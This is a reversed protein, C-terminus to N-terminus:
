NRWKKHYRLLMYFESYIATNISQVYLHNFLTICKMKISKSKHFWLLFNFFFFCNLEVCFNCCFCFLFLSSISNRQLVLSRICFIFFYFSRRRATRGHHFHLSTSFKIMLITIQLMYM